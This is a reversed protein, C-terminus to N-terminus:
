CKCEGAACGCSYSFYGPSSSTCSSFLFPVYRDGCNCTNNGCAYNVPIEQLRTFTFTLMSQENIYGSPFCPCHVHYIHLLKSHNYSIHNNAPNTPLFHVISSEKISSLPLCTCPASSSASADMLDRLCWSIGDLFGRLAIDPNRNSTCLV